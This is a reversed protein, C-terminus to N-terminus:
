GYDSSARAKMKMNWLGHLIELRDTFMTKVECYVQDRIAACRPMEATLGWHVVADM